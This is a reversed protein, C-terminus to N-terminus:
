FGSNYTKKSYINGEYYNGNKKKRNNFGNWFREKKLKLLKKRGKDGDIGQLIRKNREGLELLRWSAERALNGM